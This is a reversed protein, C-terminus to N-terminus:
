EWPLPCEESQPDQQARKILEGKNFVGLVGLVGEVGEGLM